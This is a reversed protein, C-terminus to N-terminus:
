DASMVQISQTSAEFEDFQNILLIPGEYNQSDNEKEMELIDGEIIENKKSLKVTFIKPRQEESLM